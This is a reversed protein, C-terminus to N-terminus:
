EGAAEKKAKDLFSVEEAIVQTVYKRQGEKNEYSRINIRGELSILRGKSLYDTLIKAKAEDKWWVVPIFDAEYENNQNPFNRRVALTFSILGKGEETVVKLEADSTLRGVLFVRNM